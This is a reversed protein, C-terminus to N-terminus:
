WGGHRPTSSTWGPRRERAPSYWCTPSRCSRPREGRRLGCRELWAFNPRPQWSASKADWAAAELWAAVGERLWIPVNAVYSRCLQVVTQHILSAAFAKEPRPFCLLESQAPDPYALFVFDTRDQAAIPKLYANFRAKDRFLRVRMKAPLRELDFHFVDNALRLAAEARRALDDAQVTLDRREGPLPRVRGHLAEDGPRRRRHVRARAPHRRRNNAYPGRDDSLLAARYATLRKEPKRAHRPIPLLRRPRGPPKARPPRSYPPRVVTKEVLQADRPRRGFGRRTGAILEKVSEFFIHPYSRKVEVSPVPIIHKGQEARVRMARAIEERTAAQEIPIIRTFEPLGLGAAIRRVMKLSTGIVLIRHFREAEIARRADAAQDPNAFLATRVASM